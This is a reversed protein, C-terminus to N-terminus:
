GGFDDFAGSDLDDNSAARHDAADNCADLGYHYVGGGGSRFGGGVWGFAIVDGGYWVRGM